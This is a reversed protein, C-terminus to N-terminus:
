TTQTNELHRGIYGIYIGGGRSTDDYFYMRPAVSTNQGLRVHQEMFIQGSEDVDVPVPFTRMAALRRNNRVTESEGRAVKGPSIVRGGEPPRTCWTHFDGDFGTTRKTRAYDALAMLAQWATQAWTSNRQQEDLDHCKEHDGTFTVDPVLDEMRDLLDAFSKPLETTEEAPMYAQEYLEAEVLRRQLARILDDQRQLQDKASELEADSDLLQEQLDNVTAKYRRENEDAMELLGRHLELEERLATVDASAVSAVRASAFDRLSLELGRAAPAPLSHAALRRPLAALARRARSPEAEIRRRGLARHRVADDSVAPDVDPLYTRVTGPGVRHTTGIAQNFAVTAAPTLLYMSALGPLDRTLGNVVTRWHEFDVDTSPAAVVAPLRRQEACIVDELLGEVDQEPVLLPRTTLRAEGDYADLVDLLRRVLRPPQPWPPVGSRATAEVNLSVWSVEPTDARTVTVTSVWTVGDDKRERMQWGSAANTSVYLLTTGKGITTQRADFQEVDLEKERLWSRLQERVRATAEPLDLRTEFATRYPLPQRGVAAPADPDVTQM